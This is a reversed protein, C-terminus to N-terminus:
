WGGTLHGLLGIPGTALYFIVDQATPIVNGKGAAALDKQLKDSAHKIIETPNLGAIKDLANVASDLLKVILILLSVITHLVPPYNTTQYVPIEEVAIYQEQVQESKYKTISEWHGGLIINPDVIWVKEEYPIQKTVMRTKTVQKSEYHDIVPKGNLDKVTFKVKNEAVWEGALVSFVAVAKPFYKKIAENLGSTKAFQKIAPNNIGALDFALDILGDPNLTEESKEKEKTATQNFLLQAKFHEQLAKDIIGQQKLTRFEKFLKFDERLEQEELTPRGAKRKGMVLAELADMDLNEEMTPPLEEEEESM